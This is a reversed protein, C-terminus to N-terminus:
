RKQSCISLYISSNYLYILVITKHVIYHYKECSFDNRIRYSGRSKLRSYNLEYCRIIINLDASIIDVRSNKSWGINATVELYPYKGKEFLYDCMKREIESTLNTKGM